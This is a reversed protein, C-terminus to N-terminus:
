NLLRERGISQLYKVQLFKKIKLGAVFRRNVRRKIEKILPKFTEINKNKLELVRDIYTNYRDSERNYRERHELRDRFYDDPLKFPTESVWREYDFGVNKLEKYFEGIRRSKCYDFESQILTKNNLVKEVLAGQVTPFKLIGGNNTTYLVDKTKKKYISRYFKRSNRVTYNRLHYPRDSIGLEEHRIYRTATSFFVKGFQRSQVNRTLNRTVPKLLRPSTYYDEDVFENIDPRYFITQTTNDIIHVCWGYWLYDIEVDGLNEAIISDKNYEIKRSSYSSRYQDIKFEVDTILWDIKLKRNFATERDIEEEIIETFSIVSGEEENNDNRIEKDVSEEISIISRQKKNYRDNNDNLAKRLM